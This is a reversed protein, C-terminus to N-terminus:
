QGNEESHRRIPNPGYRSGGLPNALPQMQRTESCPTNSVNDALIVVVAARRGFEDPTWRGIRELSRTALAMDAAPDTPSQWDIGFHQAGHDDVVLVTGRFRGPNAPVSEDVSQWDVAPSARQQVALLRAAKSGPSRSIINM